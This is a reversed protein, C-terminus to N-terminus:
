QFKYQEQKLFTRYLNGKTNLICLDLFFYKNGINGNIWEVM